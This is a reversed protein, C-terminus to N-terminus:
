EHLDTKLLERIQEVSLTVVGMVKAADAFQASYQPALGTKASILGFSFTTM